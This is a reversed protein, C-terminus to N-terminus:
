VTVVSYADLTLRDSYSLFREYTRSGDVNITYSDGGSAGRERHLSVVLNLAVREIDAPVAAFGFAATVSVTNLGNYFRAASTSLTVIRTAPWGPARGNTGPQLSYETSTITTYTGGTDPQDTTAYGVTTVSRLGRPIILTRGGDAAVCDSGPSFLYTRTGSLPDPTFRRGTTMEIYRSAQGIFGLINEDESTDTTGPPLLRQKADYLSCLFAGTETGVQFEASWDSTRTGGVNEYRTRYWTSIAGNPDYGTYIRTGSVLAITPTSGTGSVDAYAGGESTASQLRILAGTGYAGTNLLQDANEVTLTIINPM